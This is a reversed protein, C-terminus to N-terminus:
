QDPIEVCDGAPSYWLALVRRPSYHVVVTTWGSRLPRYIRCQDVGGYLVNGKDFSRFLIRSNVLKDLDIQFVTVSLQSNM